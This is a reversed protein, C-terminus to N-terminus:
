RRLKDPNGYFMEEIDEKFPTKIDDPVTFKGKLIGLGRRRLDSIQESGVTQSPAAPPSVRAIPQGNRVLLVEEGSAAIAAVEALSKNTSEIEVQM